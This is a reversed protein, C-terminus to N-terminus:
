FKGGCAECTLDKMLGEVVGPDVCEGNENVDFGNAVHITMISFCRECRCTIKSARNIPNISGQDVKIM